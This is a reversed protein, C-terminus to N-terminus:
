FEESQAEVPKHGDVSFGLENLAAMKETLSRLAEEEKENLDDIINDFWYVICLTFAWHRLPIISNISYRLLANVMKIASCRPRKVDPHQKKFRNSSEVLVMVTSIWFFVVGLAYVILFYVVKGEMHSM